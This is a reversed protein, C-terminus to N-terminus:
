GEASPDRSRTESRRFRANWEDRTIEWLESTMWGSVYRKMETRILRMGSSESIARSRLNDAAKPARLVPRNLTNFWFDTVTMSAERMYGQGQYEPVLWFGRHNDEMDYLSILGILTEPECKRRITWCWAQGKEMQPLIVTNVYDEAGNAPYPWPVAGVLYRVIEWRPFCQQMQPADESVLPVLLLRTTELVPIPM